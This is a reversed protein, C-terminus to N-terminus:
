VPLWNAVRVPAIAAPAAPTSGLNTTICWIYRPPPKPRRRSASMVTGATCAAFDTPLGTLTM